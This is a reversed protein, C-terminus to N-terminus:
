EAGGGNAYLADIEAAFREAIAKRKQKLTPTLLGGEQTFEGEIIRWRKVQEYRALGANASAIAAAVRAERDAAAPIRRAEDAELTVLAVLFSRRDGHVYVQSVLASAAKIAAEVNAPAIKKGASTVILSKKRDTISLFGDADLKGIDGTKFFGEPTFCEATAAEDKWYGAFVGPGRVLVEGDEAIAIETGPIARGVTGFRFADPTNVTAPAATETLGYGELILVGLAYFFDLIERSIPAGGSTLFRVRGGFFGQVKRYVLRDALGHKWRLLPPAFREAGRKRWEGMDRGVGLAWGFIARRVPSSGAITAAVRAHAKEWIRPVSAQVTPGLERWNDPLKEISEAFAGRVGIAMAAYAAVRQLSHALPLFAVGLDDPGLPFLARMAEVVSVLNGHTLMAGKPPGTTGSTYIITALDGPEVAALRRDGLGPDRALAAEGERELAEIEGFAVLAELAPLGARVSELKARQAETDFFCLRAGAHALVYAAQEAPSTTYIGVTVAGISLIALDFASWEPRTEGVIAVRDGRRIGRADLAAALARVRRAARAGTEGVWRGDVKRFAIERAADAGTMREFLLAPISRAPTM